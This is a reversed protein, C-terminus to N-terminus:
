VIFSQIHIKTDPGLLILDYTGPLFHSFAFNGIEDVFTTAVIKEAQYAEMMFGNSKLGTILGLLTRRGPQEADDQIDIVIQVNGAQYIFPEDEDGRLGTFAPSLSSDTQEQAAGRGSILKAIFVKISQVIQPESTMEQLFEELQTIESRCLPCQHLHAAMILKQPDLLLGLHYEGLEMPPPCNQRYLKGRMTTQLKRWRDAKEHCFPCQEVHHAVIDDAEGDIYSILKWDELSPSSICNM